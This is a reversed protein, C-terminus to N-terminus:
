VPKSKRPAITKRQWESEPLPLGYEPRAFTYGRAPPAPTPNRRTTNNLHAAFSRNRFRCVRLQPLLCSPFACPAACPLPFDIFLTRGAFKSLSREAKSRYKFIDPRLSCVMCIKGAPLLSVDSPNKPLLALESPKASAIFSARSFTLEPSDWEADVARLSSSLFRARTSLGYERLM